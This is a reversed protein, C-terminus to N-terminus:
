SHNGLLDVCTYDIIIIKWNLYNIICITRLVLNSSVYLIVSVREGEQRGRERGGEERGKRGGERGEM